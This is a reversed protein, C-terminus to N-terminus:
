KQSYLSIDLLFYHAIVNYEKEYQINILTCIKKQTQNIHHVSTLFCVCQSAVSIKLFTQCQLLLLFSECCINLGQRSVPIQQAKYPRTIQLKKVVSYVKAPKMHPLNWSVHRHFNRKKGCKKKRETKNKWEKGNWSSMEKGCLGVFQFHCVCVLWFALHWCMDSQPLYTWM